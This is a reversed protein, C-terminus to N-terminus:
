HLQLVRKAEARAEAFSIRRRRAALLKDRVRTRATVGPPRGAGRAETLVSRTTDGVMRGVAALAQEPGGGVIDVWTAIIAGSNVVFDPVCIVGRRHLHEEADETVSLNGAPCVIRARLRGDNFADIARPRAGPVLVDAPIAWLQELAIREGRGYERVCADGHHRRLELLRPIDIGQPDYIGGALTTVAVVVADEQCLYRATGAGVQGFGEIAFKAGAIPRDISELAARAAAVVGCGTLHYSAPDGDIVWSASSEWTVVNTAAAGAYIEDVDKGEVGMDPGVGLLFDPHSLYPRLARGFARLVARKREAPMAPDGFIGAKAGGTPLDFIAWKYTMARSLDGVEDETLDPVMRTGGGAPGYVTSDIVLIGRMGTPSDHVRVVTEAGVEDHQM